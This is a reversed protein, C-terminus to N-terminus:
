GETMEFCELTLAQLELLAANLMKYFKLLLPVKEPSDQEISRIACQIARVEEHLEIFRDSANTITVVVPHKKM